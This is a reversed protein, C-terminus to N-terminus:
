SSRKLGVPMQREALLWRSSDQHLNRHEPELASAFSLCLEESMACQSEKSSSRCSAKGTWTGGTNTLPVCASVPKREIM